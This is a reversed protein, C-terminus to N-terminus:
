FSIFSDYFGVIHSVGLGISWGGDDAGIGSFPGSVMQGKGSGRSFYLKKVLSQYAGCNGLNIIDAFGKFGTTTDISSGSDSIKIANGIAGQYRNTDLICAAKLMFLAVAINDNSDVPDPSIINNALDFTYDIDFPYDQSTILGATVISSLIRSDDYIIGDPDNILVRVGIPLSSTWPM